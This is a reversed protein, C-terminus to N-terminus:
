SKHVAEAIDSSELGYDRLLTDLEALNAPAQVYLNSLWKGLYAATRPWSQKLERQLAELDQRKYRAKRLNTIASKLAENSMGDTASHSGFDDYMEKKIEYPLDQLVKDAAATEAAIRTTAEPKVAAVIETAYRLATEAIRKRATAYVEPTAGRRPLEVAYFRQLFAGRIQLEGCSSSSVGGAQGPPLFFHAIEEALEVFSPQDAESPLDIAYDFAARMENLYHVTNGKALEGKARELRDDFESANLVKACGVSLIMALGFVRRTPTHM